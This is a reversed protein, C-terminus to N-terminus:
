ARPCRSNCVTSHRLQPQDVTITDGADVVTKCGSCCHMVNARRSAAPAHQLIRRAVVSLISSVLTAVLVLSLTPSRHQAIQMATNYRVERASPALFRRSLEMRGFFGVSLGRRRTRAGDALLDPDIVFDDESPKPQAGTHAAEGRLAGYGFGCPAALTPFSANSYRPPFLELV